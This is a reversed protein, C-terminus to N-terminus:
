NILKYSADEQVPLVLPLRLECKNSSQLHRASAEQQWGNRDVGTIPDTFLSATAMVVARTVM